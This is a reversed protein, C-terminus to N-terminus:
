ISLCRDRAAVPWRGVVEGSDIVWVDKHLASTPCVHRPIAWLEDGPILSTAEATELVLHEENQLVVTADPLEPFEVRSAAPPDSAVAKYGLDCTIRGRGPLSVVRTLLLAAPIFKLDPFLKQYGFDSLVCTGPSLEWTSDDLAAFCPFSGTGGAVIRPVSCKLALLQTRLACVDQWITDVAAKREAYDSQHNQGDYVHLGAARVGPTNSIAQYMRLSADGLPCGTRHMGTDIDLMVDIQTGAAVMAQGLQELPRPHDATVTFVVEPFRERFAVARAINPGVLNYALLIDKVGCLALMEAEALTACKHKTIGLELELAVMQPMKHTKCHPRLREVGGAIGIMRALNERILPLFLVMAPSEMEHVRSVRYRVDMTQRM